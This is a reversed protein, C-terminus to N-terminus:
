KAYKKYYAYANATNKNIKMPIKFFITNTNLKIRASLCCNISHLKMLHLKVLYMYIPFM